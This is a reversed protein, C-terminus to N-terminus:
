TVAGLLLACGPSLWGDEPAAPGIEESHFLVEAPLAFPLPLSDLKLESPGVNWLLLREGAETQTRVWLLDDGLSGATLHHRDRNKLVPDTKRLRLLERYLALTKAHEGSERESWNLHALGFTAQAQPDLVEQLHFGAFGAFEKKRGETVAQGLEGSHDSFFPFPTSAAWEQGMFLLPTMPLTLLLTSAGRFQAPTVHSLHHLRDGVARNGVQDHNQIFYVFHEASLADAPKGRPADELPWLQGEFVWGRNIVNALAAAGGTFPRYYGDQETSLTVRVEHHFDDVWIGDLQHDTVLEPLNRYDEALLLHTGRLAHVEDALERLIHVPSDDPMAQTADLRLGDLHYDRLWMRANGTIYRRMHKEAYDLGEGWASSFRDTFYSPSYVSLYNGDPGFHNYVVDLFVGLGYGHAADVFAMLDQPRGYPAYPAYLAAGDYGWGRQGPFAAVPMLQIATIGLERLYPLKQQAAKYTGQPTFTGIHLEYFICQDLTLGRWATNQWAFDNLNVVEAEAHVGDPLFRAYPDPWAKGGLVFLYRTGPQVPLVVEYIGGGQAQMPYTVGDIRVGVENTTTAWVRFRVGSGDPLPHAGLRTALADSETATSTQM